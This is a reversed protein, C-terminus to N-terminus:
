TLGIEIGHQEALFRTIGDPIFVDPIPGVILQSPIQHLQSTPNHFHADMINFMVNMNMGRPLLISRIHPIMELNHVTTLTCRNSIYSGQCPLILTSETLLNIYAIWTILTDVHINQTLTLKILKSSFNVQFM